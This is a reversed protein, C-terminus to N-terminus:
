TLQKKKGLSIDKDDSKQLRDKPNLIKTFRKM